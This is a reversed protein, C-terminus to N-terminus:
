RAGTYFLDFVRGPERFGPGTDRVIMQVARADHGVTVRIADEGVGEGGAQSAAGVTQAANNLLHELMQRLRERDVRVAAADEAVQM